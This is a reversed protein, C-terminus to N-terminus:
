LSPGECEKTTKPISNNNDLILINLEDLTLGFWRLIYNEDSSLESLKPFKFKKFLEIAEDLLSTHTKWYTQINNKDLGALALREFIQPHIFAHWRIRLHIWSNHYNGAILCEDLWKVNCLSYPGIILSTSPVCETIDAFPIKNFPHNFCELAIDRRFINIYIATFFNDNVTVVKNIPYINTPLPQQCIIVKESHFREVSDDPTLKNERYYVSFNGFIFPIGKNEKVSNFVKELGDSLIFDDDGIIWLYDGKAQIATERINGLMGVNAGNIVYDFYQHDRYKLLVSESNDTSCNDVVLLRIQGEYKNILNLTWPINLNLFKERNYTSIAITMLPALTTKAFPNRSEIQWRINEKQSRAIQIRKAFLLKEIEAKAESTSNAFHPAVSFSPFKILQKYTLNKLPINNNPFVLFLHRYDGQYKKDLLSIQNIDTIIEIKYPDEIKIDNSYDKFVKMLEDAYDEWTRMKRLQIEKTLNLILNDDAVMNLISEKLSTYFNDENFTACGGGAAIELMSGCNSVLCPVGKVLSEVIPLGFGEDSSAFITFRSQEYLESILNDSSYPHYYINQENNIENQFEQAIDGHLCGVLHLEMNLPLLHRISKFIKVVELQRKRPEITGILLIKNKLNLSSRNSLNLPGEPLPLSYVLNELLPKELQCKDVLYDILVSRSFNSISFIKDCRLLNAMYLYHEYALNQYHPNTLPIIDYFIAAVKGGNNQIMNMAAATQNHGDPTHNDIEPLFLWVNNNIFDLNDLFRNNVQCTHPNIQLHQPVSLPAFINEIEFRNLFTLQGHSKDWKVLEICVAKNTTKLLSNLLNIEVRQVGTRHGINSLSPIYYLLRLM